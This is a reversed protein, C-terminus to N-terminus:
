AVRRRHEHTSKARPPPHYILFKSHISTLEYKACRIVLKRHPSDHWENPADLGSVIKLNYSKLIQHPPFVPFGIRPSAGDIVIKHYFQGWARDHAEMGDPWNYSTKKSYQWYNKYQLTTKAIEATYDIYYVLVTVAM